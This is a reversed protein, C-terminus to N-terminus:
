RRFSRRYLMRFKKKSVGIRSGRYLVILGHSLASVSGNHKSHCVYQLYKLRFRKDIQDRM